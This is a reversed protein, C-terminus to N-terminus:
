ISGYDIQGTRDEIQVENRRETGIQGEIHKAEGHPRSSCDYRDNHDTGEEYM